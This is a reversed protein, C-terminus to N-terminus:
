GEINADGIKLASGNITSWSTLGAAGAEDGVWRVDPGVDSFINASIKRQHVMDFWKTFMYTMNTANPGKAGDFWVESIPGYRDMIM